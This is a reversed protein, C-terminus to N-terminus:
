WGGGEPHSPQTKLLTRHLPVMAPVLGVSVSSQSSRCQPGRTQMSGRDPGLGMRVNERGAMSVMGRGLEGVVYPTPPSHQVQTAATTLEPKQQQVGPYGTAHDAEVRVSPFDLDRAHGPYRSPRGCANEAFMWREIAGLHRLLDGFTFAGERPAWEIHEAPICEAVRRTRGRFGDWYSLFPEITTIEM